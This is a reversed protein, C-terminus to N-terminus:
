TKRYTNIDGVRVCGTGALGRKAAAIRPYWEHNNACCSTHCGCPTRTSPDEVLEGCHNCVVCDCDELLHPRLDCGGHDWQNQIDWAELRVYPSEVNYSTLFDVCVRVASAWLGQTLFGYLLNLANGACVQGEGLIHPHPHGDIHENDGDEWVRMFGKGGGLDNHKCFAEVEFDGFNHPLYGGYGDRIKVGRARFTIRKEQKYIRVPVHPDIFRSCGLLVSAEEAPSASTAIRKARETMAARSIRSRKVDSSLVTGRAQVARLKRDQAGRLRNLRDIEDYLANVKRELADRRARRKKGARALLSAREAWLKEQAVQKHIKSVLEAAEERDSASFLTTLSEKNHSALHIRM